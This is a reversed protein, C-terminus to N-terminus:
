LKIGLKISIDFSFFWSAGSEYDKNYIYEYQGAGTGVKNKNRSSIYRLGIGLSPDFYLPGAIKLQYGTMAHLTFMNRYVQYTNPVGNSTEAMDAKTYQYALQPGLHFGSLYSSGEFLYFRYAASLLFGVTKETEVRTYTGGCSKCPFIYMIDAAVSQKEVTMWELGMRVGMSNSVQDGLLSIVDYKIICGQQDKNSEQANMKNSIMILTSILVTIISTKM